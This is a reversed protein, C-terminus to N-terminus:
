RRGRAKKPKALAIRQIEAVRCGDYKDTKVAKITAKVRTFTRENVGPREVPEGEFDDDGSYVIETYPRPVVGFTSYRRGDRDVMKTLTWDGYDSRGSIRAYIRVEIEVRGAGFDERAPSPPPVIALDVDGAAIEELIVQIHALATAAPLKACLERAEDAATKGAWYRDRHAYMALKAWDLADIAAQAADETASRRAIAAERDARGREARRARAAEKQAARVDAIEAPTLEAYEACDCGTKFRVGRADVFHTMDLISAGCVDCSGGQCVFDCSLIGRQFTGLGDPWEGDLVGSFGVLTYPAVFGARAFPHTDTSNTATVFILRRIQAEIDLGSGIKRDHSKERCETRGCAPRQAHGRSM